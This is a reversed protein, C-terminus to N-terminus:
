CILPRQADLGHRIPHAGVWREDIPDDSPQYRSDTSLRIRDTRNDLSAHVTGLGFVIVDGAAHDTWLWRGGVGARIQNADGGRIEGGRGYSPTPTEGLNECYTDVDSDRYAALAESPRHSGELVALGGMEVPVDCWPTWMTLVRRSGRGMFVVDCHPDTGRAATVARAWTFDFSRAPEGFFGAFFTLTEPGYLLAALEPVLPTPDDLLVTGAGPRAILEAPDRDPHLMESACRELMARGARRAAETDFFGPLFVYGDSTM